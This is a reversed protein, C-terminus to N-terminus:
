RGDKYRVGGAASFLRPRAGANKGGALIDLTGCNADPAFRVSGCLEAPMPIMDVDNECMLGGGPPSSGGVGGGGGALPGLEGLQTPPAAGPQPQGSFRRVRWDSGVRVEAMLEAGEESV